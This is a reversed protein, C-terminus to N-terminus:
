FEHYNGDIIVNPGKWRSEDITGTKIISNGTNKNLTYENDINTLSKM